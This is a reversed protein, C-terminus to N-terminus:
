LQMKVAAPRYTWYTQKVTPPSTRRTTARRAARFRSVRPTESNARNVLLGALTKSKCYANPHCKPYPLYENVYILDKGGFTADLHVKGLLDNNLRRFGHACCIM